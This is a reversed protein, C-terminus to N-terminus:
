DKCPPAIQPKWEVWDGRFPERKRLAPLLAVSPEAACPRRPDDGSGAAASICVMVSPLIAPDPQPRAAPRRGGNWSTRLSMPPAPMALCHGISDAGGGALGREPGGETRSQASQSLISQPCSRLGGSAKADGHQAHRKGPM